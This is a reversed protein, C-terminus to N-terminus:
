LARTVRPDTSVVPAEAGVWARGGFHRTFIKEATRTALAQATLTPNPGGLANALASNDAVYLRRVWRSEADATLVSDAASRGMRMTSHVHLLLPAWDMRYVKRAGAGRLLETARRALYERNAHTRRTRHRGDLSVKPAAGHADPPLASLSVRNRHQVDDDTLVLINMLRNVGNLLADKLEPGLVRGARGDWPGTMGRGNTYRGRVGSGSMAMQFAQIAPGVGLQELAGRGPFDCRAASSPGKSSGTEEDFLGTVGDLFHDTYGRGVWGNPDPLGSNLWLRPTETAGGALVVVRADERHREGTAGTRWTVGTAVTEGGRRETHVKVAFSDPLLAVDRGGRAWASATMAMPVYSNDTSRKAYQNRPARVPEMCGQLCFGCYTCGTAQPYVLRAPDTTRGATGGPQLIANEQPRYSARLTDKTTQVPIGLREAGRFFVTEKTGMAATQVPLTAEVWEYYPVLEDYRFPFAHARDYADRDPGEYGAFAGKYARPSNGYYHQTTGGVGAVQLIFSNQPEERLWAPKGRDAPGFRLFGTLPNNADNEFHTWSARPDTYHAGAELLLVDLGRAALEKAVVPGGGGAGVVIVDRM